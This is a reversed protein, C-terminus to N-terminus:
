ERVLLLLLATTCIIGLLNALIPGPFGTLDYLIGGLFPSLFSFLGRFANLLGMAEGRNEQPVKLALYSQAAPVWTAAVLGWFIQLFFFAKLSKFTLWGLMLPIGVLESIVLFKFSGFRDVLRGVPIQFFLWAAFSASIIAGIQSTSLGYTKVLMGYLIGYGLGWSFSDAAIAIYFPRLHAPPSFLRFAMEKWSFEEVSNNFILTEKVLVVIPFLALAELALGLVFVSVFGTRDAIFGGLAPAFVGPIIAATMILSYATGLEKERVSDAVMSSQAPRSLNSLGLFITAPFVIRWDKFYLALLCLGLYFLVLICGLVLFPKRGKRDSFWGGILHAFAPIIGRHGALSEVFGIVSMSAGLSLIFPQWIASIINMRFGSLFSSAILAYVNRKRSM